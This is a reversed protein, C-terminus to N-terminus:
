FSMSSHTLVILVQSGSERSFMPSILAAKHASTLSQPHPHPPYPACCVTMTKFHYRRIYGSERSFMPSILYQLFQTHPHPPYPAWCVTMTKFHYRRTYGSERSFMSILYQIIQTHPHPPYPAWCVTMTKFQYRRTYGSERSFMPSILYQLFQTHPHPSYPACCQKLIIDALTGLSDSSKFWVWPRVDTLDFCRQPRQYQLFRTHPHPPYPCLLCDYDIRSFRWMRAAPALFIYAETGGLTKGKAV